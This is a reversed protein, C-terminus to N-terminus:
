FFEFFEIMRDSFVLKNLLWFSDYIPFFVVHTPNLFFLAHLLTRFRESPEQRYNEFFGSLFEREM